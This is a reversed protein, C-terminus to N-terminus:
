IIPDRYFATKFYLLSCKVVIPNHFRRQGFLETRIFFPTRQGSPADRQMWLVHVQQWTNTDKISPHGRQPIDVLYTGTVLSWRDQSCTITSLQDLPKVATMNCVAIEALVREGAHLLYPVRLLGIIGVNRCYYSFEVVIDLWWLLSRWKVALKILNLKKLWQVKALNPDKMCAYYQNSCFRRYFQVRENPM